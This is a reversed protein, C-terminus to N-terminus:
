WTFEMVDHNKAASYWQGQARMAMEIVERACGAGGVTHAVYLSEAKAEPAANAPCCALGAMRLAPLDPVDDGMYLVNEPELSHSFMFDTLAEGKNTIGLYLDTVGLDRMRQAVPQSRGGTIIAVTYGKKVALQIAYGDRSHMRRMQQGDPLLTVTGDTLVGDVDFVFAKIQNLRALYNM